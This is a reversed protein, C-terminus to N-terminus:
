ESDFDTAFFIFRNEDMQCFGIPNSSDMEHIDKVMRTGAETGDSIWLEYGNEGDNASFVVKDNFRTLYQIDSTGVGPLIDKVMRTGEQTGDTIWLEEGHDADSASFFAKYGTEPSGAICLNKQGYFQKNQTINAKVGAPLLATTGEPLTQAVAGLCCIAASSLLLAQKRM